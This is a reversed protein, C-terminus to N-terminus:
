RQLQNIAFGSPLKGLKWLLGECLEVEALKKLGDFARYPISTVSSDVRLRVVDRPVADM